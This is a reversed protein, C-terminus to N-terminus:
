NTKACFEAPTKQNVVKIVAAGKIVFESVGYHDRSAASWDYTWGMGTFPYGTFPYDKDSPPNRYFDVRYSQWM